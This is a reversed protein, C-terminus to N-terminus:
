HRGTLFQATLTAKLAFNEETATERQISLHRILLAPQSALASDIFARIDGYSGTLPFNMTSRAFGAGVEVEETYEVHGISLQNEAASDLIAQQAKALEAAPILMSQFNRQAAVIRAPDISNDMIVPQIEAQHTLLWGALALIGGFLLAMVPQRRLMLRLDLLSFTSSTM